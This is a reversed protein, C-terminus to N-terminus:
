AQPTTEAVERLKSRKWTVTIETGKDPQSSIRCVGGSREARERMTSLGLGRERPPLSKLAFGVGDDVVKMRVRQRTFEAQVHIRTAEAHKAANNLAEQLIRVMSVCVLTPLDDAEGSLDVTVQVGPRSVQFEHCLLELTAGIGFEELMSPRLNRVIGRVEAIAAKLQAFGREVDARAPSDGCRHMATELSLKAMSLCQGLSDHLDDAIRRRESEQAMILQGSLTRLKHDLRAVQAEGQVTRQTLLDALERNTERLTGTIRRGETIDTVTLAAWSRDGVDVGFQEGLARTLCLRLTRGIHADQIEWELIGADDITALAYGFSRRLACEASQCSPHLRDHITVPRGKAMRELVPGALRFEVDLIVGRANVLFRVQPPPQVAASQFAIREAEATAPREDGRLAEERMLM